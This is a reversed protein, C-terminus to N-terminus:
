LSAARLLACCRVVAASRVAAGHQASSRAAERQQASSGDENAESVRYLLKGQPVRAHPLRGAMSVSEASAAPAARRRCASRAEPLRQAGAAAKKGRLLFNGRRTISCEQAKPARGAMRAGEASAAPAARKGFICFMVIKVRLVGAGCACPYRCARLAQQLRAAGAALASPALMAPRAGCARPHDIVRLPSCCFFFFVPSCRRSCARLAQQSRRLRSCPPALAAPALPNM